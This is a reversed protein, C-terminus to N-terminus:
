RGTRWDDLDIAAVLGQESGFVLTRGDPSWAVATVEGDGPRKVLVPQSRDLAVLVVTGDEYGAAVLDLRPHTDTDLGPLPSGVPGGHRAEEVDGRNTLTHRVAGSRVDLLAFRHRTQYGQRM